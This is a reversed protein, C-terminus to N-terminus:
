RGVRWKTNTLDDTVAVGRIKRTGGGGGALVLAGQGLRNLEKCKELNYEIVENVSIHLKPYWEWYPQPGVICFILPFPTINRQLLEIMKSAMINDYSANFVVTGSMGMSEGSHLEVFGNKNIEVYTEGIIPINISTNRIIQSLTNHYKEANVEIHHATAKRWTPIVFDCYPLLQICANDYAIPDVYVETDKTEEPGYTMAVIWGDEKLKKAISALTTSNEGKWVLLAGNFGRAKFWALEAIQNSASAEDIPTVVQGVMRLDNINSISTKSINVIDEKLKTNWWDLIKFGNESTLTSDMIYRKDMSGSYVERLVENISKRASITTAEKTKGLSDIKVDTMDTTLLNPIKTVASDIKTIKETKDVETQTADVADSEKSKNILAVEADTLYMEFTKGVVGIKINTYYQELTKRINDIEALTLPSESIGKVPTITNNVLSAKLIKISDVINTVLIDEKPKNIVAVEISITTANVAKDSVRFKSSIVSSTSINISETNGIQTSSGLSIRSIPQAIVQIPEVTPLKKRIPTPVELSQVKHIDNGVCGVIGFVSIGLLISYISFKM